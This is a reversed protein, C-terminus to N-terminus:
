KSRKAAILGKAAAALENVLFGMKPHSPEFDPQFGFERLAESTTPGISALCINRLNRVVQQEVGEEAALRILHAIQISTTFMAADIEGAALRHIAARLPGTDEPLDWGYIRFPSVTKGMARLGQILETSPKGYEQLALKSEPRAEMVTLLERWTNPEPVQVHAPLELERLAASPKPGRVIRTVGALAARLDAEAFQKLLTRWLMRTGVGTLLIIGDYNGALLNEAFQFAESNAELPVERMSPASVPEGGQKRILVAMEGSRRSELSLIRLGDFPM